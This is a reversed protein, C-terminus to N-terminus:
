SILYAQYIRLFRNELLISLLYEFQDWTKIMKANISRIFTHEAEETALMMM